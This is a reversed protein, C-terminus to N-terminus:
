IRPAFVGAIRVHYFQKSHVNRNIILTSQNTLFRRTSGVFDPHKYHILNIQKDETAGAISLVRYERTKWTKDGQFYTAFGRVYLAM